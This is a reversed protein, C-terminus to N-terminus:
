ENSILMNQLLDLEERYEEEFTEIIEQVLNTCREALDAIQEALETNGKEVQVKSIVMLENALSLLEGTHQNHESLRQAFKKEM